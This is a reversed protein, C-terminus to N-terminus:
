PGLGRALLLRDNGTKNYIRRAYLDLEAADPNEDAPLIDLDRLPELDGTEVLARWATYHQTIPVGFEVLIQQPLIGMEVLPLPDNAIMFVLFGTNAFLALSVGPCTDRPGFIGLWILPWPSDAQNYITWAADALLAHYPDSGDPVIVRGDAKYIISPIIPEALRSNKILDERKM